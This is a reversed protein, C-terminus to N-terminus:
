CTWRQRRARTIFHHRLGFFRLNEVGARERTGAWAERINKIPKGKRTFVRDCGLYRVLNLGKLTKTLGEDLPILRGEGTKTDASRLRIFGGKLCVQDWTLNLIESRRTGTHMALEIVPKLNEPAAKMLAEYEGPELVRNRENNEKLMRVQSVPNRELYGDWVARNM